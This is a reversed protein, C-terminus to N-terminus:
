LTLSFHQLCFKPLFSLIYFKPKNQYYCFFQRDFKKLFINVTEDEHERVIRFIQVKTAPSSKQRPFQRKVIEMSSLMACAQVNSFFLARLIARSIQKGTKPSVKIRLATRSEYRKDTLGFRVKDEECPVPIAM